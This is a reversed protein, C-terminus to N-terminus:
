RMRLLVVKGGVILQGYSRGVGNKKVFTYIEDMEIIDPRADMVHRAAESLEASLEERAARIWRLVTPASVEAFRAAKRIGVNNLCM